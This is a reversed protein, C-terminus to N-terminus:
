VFYYTASACFEKSCNSWHKVIRGKEVDENDYIGFDASQCPGACLSCCFNFKLCYSSIYWRVTNRDEYRIEWKKFMVNFPHHVTGIM